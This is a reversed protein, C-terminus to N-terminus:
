GRVYKLIRRCIEESRSCILSIKRIRNIECDFEKGNLDVIYGGAEKLILYAAAIDVNRLHNRIDVFFDLRNSAIYSIELSAAGLIRIRKYQRLLKSVKDVDDTYVVGTLDESSKEEIFIRSKNLYSGIGKRAEFTEDKFINSVISYFIDKMTANRKYRSVAVSISAFPINSVFNYSGDLPDIIIVYEPEEVLNIRENEESVISCPIDYDKLKNILLENAFIDIKWTVDGDKKYLRRRIEKDNLHRIIEERVEEVIERINDEIM